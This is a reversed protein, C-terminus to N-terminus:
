VIWALTVTGSMTVYPVRTRRLSYTVNAARVIDLYVEQPGVATMTVAALHEKLEM